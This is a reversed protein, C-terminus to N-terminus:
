QLTCNLSCHKINITQTFISVFDLLPVCLTKSQKPKIYKMHDIYLLHYVGNKNKFAGNNVYLSLRQITFQLYFSQFIQKAFILIGIPFM